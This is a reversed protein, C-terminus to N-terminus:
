NIVTQCNILLLVESSLGPTFLAGVDEEEEVIMPLELQATVREDTPRSPTLITTATAATAIFSELRACTSTPDAPHWLIDDSAVTASLCHHVPRAAYQELSGVSTSCSASFQSIGGLSPEVPPLVTVNSPDAASYSRALQSPQLPIGRLDLLCTVPARERHTPAETSHQGYSLATSTTEHHSCVPSEVDGPGAILPNM